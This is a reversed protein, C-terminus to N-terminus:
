STVLTVGYHSPIVRHAHTRDTDRAVALIELFCPMLFAGKVSYSARARGRTRYESGKTGSALVPYEAWEGRGAKVGCALLPRGSPYLTM